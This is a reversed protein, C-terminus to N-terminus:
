SGFVLIHELGPFDGMHLLTTQLNLDLIDTVFKLSMRQRFPHIKLPVVCFGQESDYFM